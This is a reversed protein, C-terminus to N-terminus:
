DDRQRRAILDLLKRTEGSDIAVDIALDVFSGATRFIIGWVFLSPIVAWVVLGGGQGQDAVYLGWALLGAAALLCLVGVLRLIGGMMRLDAYREPQPATANRREAQRAMKAQRVTEALDPEQRPEPTKDQDRRPPSEPVPPVLPTQGPAIPPPRKIAPGHQETELPALPYEQERRQKAFLGKLRGATTWESGPVDRRVLSDPAITGAEALAQLEATSVPGRQWGNSQYLWQWAM